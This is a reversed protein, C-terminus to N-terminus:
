VLKKIGFISLKITEKSVAEAVLFTPFGSSFDHDSDSLMLSNDAGRNHGKTENTKIEAMNNKYLNM